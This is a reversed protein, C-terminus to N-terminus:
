TPFKTARLWLTLCVASHWPKRSCCGVALGCTAAHLDCDHRPAVHEALPAGAPDVASRPGLIEEVDDVTDHRGLQGFLRQERGGQCGDQCFSSPGARRSAALVAEKKRALSCRWCSTPPRAAHSRAPAAESGKRGCAVLTRCCCKAARQLAGLGPQHVQRKGPAWSVRGGWIM